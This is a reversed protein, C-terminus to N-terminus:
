EKIKKGITKDTVARFSELWGQSIILDRGGQPVLRNVSAGVLRGISASAVSYNGAANNGSSYEAIATLGSGVNSIANGVGIGPAFGTCISAHTITNGITETIAGSTRVFENQTKHVGQVAPNNMTRQHPTMEAVVVVENLQWLGATETGDSYHVVSLGEEDVSFGMAGLYTGEINREAFFDKFNDKTLASHRHLNGDKGEYWDKGDPDTRLIPNNGVYAYPSVPFYNVAHPDVVHWRGIEADYFRAGYDYWGLGFDDQLEKGNYLYRNQRLAGASHSSLLSPILMGFPYYHSEQISALQGQQDQQLVLRTNGLHDRLHFETFWSGNDHVFRGQPTNVWALNDNVFVFAGAYDRRTGAGGVDFLQQSTKVGSATYTYQIMKEANEGASHSIHSPLNLFNNLSVM